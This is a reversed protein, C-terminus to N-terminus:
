LMVFVGWFGSQSNVEAQVKPNSRWALYQREYAINAYFDINIFLQGSNCVM